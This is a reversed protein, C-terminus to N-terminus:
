VMVNACRLDLHLVNQSHIYEMAYAVDRMISLLEPYTAGEGGRVRNKLFHELDIGDVFEM